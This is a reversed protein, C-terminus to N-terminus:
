TIRSYKAWRVVFVSRCFNESGSSLGQALMSM